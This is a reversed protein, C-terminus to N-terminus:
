VFGTESYANSGKRLSISPISLTPGLCCMCVRPEMLPHVMLLYASAKANSSCKILHCKLFNLMRTAKNAVNVHTSWSLHNDLMVGLYTHKHTVSLASGHLSYNVIIPNHVKYMEYLYVQQPKIHKAQQSLTDLDQQLLISNQESKITHYLLCENDFFRLQSLIDETIDNIYIFFM